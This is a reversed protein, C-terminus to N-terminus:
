VTVNRLEINVETVSKNEKDVLEKSMKLNKNDKLTDYVLTGMCVTMAVTLSLLIFDALGYAKNYIVPDLAIMGCLIIALSLLLTYMVIRFSMMATDENILDDAIRKSVIINKGMRTTKFLKTHQEVAAQFGTKENDTIDKSELYQQVEDKKLIEYVYNTDVKKKAM